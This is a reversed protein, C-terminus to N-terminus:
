FEMERLGSALISLVTGGSIDLSDGSGALERSEVEDGIRLTM